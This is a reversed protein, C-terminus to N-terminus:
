LGCFDHCQGEPLIKVGASAAEQTTSLATAVVVQSPRQTLVVVMMRAMMKKDTDDDTMMVIVQLAQGGAQAETRLCLIAAKRKKVCRLWQTCRCITFNMISIM